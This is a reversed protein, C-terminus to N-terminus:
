NTKYKDILNELEKNSRRDLEHSFTTTYDQFSTSAGLNKYFIQMDKTSLGPLSDSSAVLQTLQSTLQKRTERHQQLREKAKASAEKWHFPNPSEFTIVSSAYLISLYFLPIAFYKRIVM